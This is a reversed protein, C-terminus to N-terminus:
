TPSSDMGARGAAIVSDANHQLGFRVDVAHMLAESSLLGGNGPPDSRKCCAAVTGAPLAAFSLTIRREVGSSM